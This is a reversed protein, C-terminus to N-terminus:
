SVTTDMDMYAAGKDNHLAFGVYQVVRAVDANYRESEGLMRVEIGADTGQPVIMSVGTGSGDELNLAYVKSVDAASEDAIHDNRFIPTGNYSLVNQGTVPSTWFEFGGGAARVATRFKRMVESNCIIADVKGDKSVVADLLADLDQFIADQTTLGSDTVQTVNTWMGLGDPADTGSTTNVLAASLKRGINRGKSAIQMSMQDVGSAASTAAIFRDVQAQGVIPHLTYTRATSINAKVIDVDDHINTLASVARPTWEAGAGETEMNVTLTDGAISVVPLMSILPDVQVLTDAVGAAIESNFHKQAEALTLIAM